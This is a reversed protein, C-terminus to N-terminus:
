QDCTQKVYFYPRSFFRVSTHDASSIWRIVFARNIQSNEYEPWLQCGAPVTASPGMPDANITADAEIQGNDGQASVHVMPYGESTWGTLTITIPPFESDTVIECDALGGPLECDAYTGAKAIMPLVATEGVKITGTSNWPDYPRSSSVGIVDLLPQYLGAMMGMSPDYGFAELDAIAHTHLEYYEMFTMNTQNNMSLTTYSGANDWRDMVIIAEPTTIFVYFGIMPLWVTMAVEAIAGLGFALQYMSTPMSKWLNFGQTFGGTVATRVMGAPLTVAADQALADDTLGIIEIMPNAEQIAVGVDELRELPMFVRVVRSMPINSGVFRTAVGSKPSFTKQMIEEPMMPSFEVVIPTSLAANFLNQEEQPLLSVANAINLKGSEFDIVAQAYQYQQLTVADATGADILPQLLAKTSQAAAVNQQSKAPDFLRVDVVQQAYSEATIFGAGVPKDSREISVWIDDAAMAQQKSFWEPNVATYERNLCIPCLGADKMAKFSLFGDLKAVADVPLVNAESIFRKSLIAYADTGYYTAFGGVENAKAISQSVQPPLGLFMGDQIPLGGWNNAWRPIEGVAHPLSPLGNGSTPASSAAGCATLVLSAVLLLSVLDFWKWKM